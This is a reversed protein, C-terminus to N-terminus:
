DLNVKIVIATMDDLPTKAGCFARVTSYLGDVIERATHQMHAQIFDLVGRVGFLEDDTSHAELIGDTLLLVLEGPELMLAPAACVDSEPLIGLPLGTSELNAKVRGAHDFLYCTTHGASAYVLSKIRPDLRAFLFTVYRDDPTDLALAHNLLQIIETVDTHTTVFARLYARTEAMLLAPGFGHGSVDGVAIGLSGDRLPIYDFYDGGTAETPYSAGSIDFDALPLHAVPFLKQQIQRALDIEQRLRESELREKMEAIQREHERQEIQRLLATHQHVQRTKQFIEVFVAVKSRLVQTVVPKSLYDVAGLSYGKFMQVDDTQFATLFIIPTNKCRERQRILEATEFGDMGPMKVDMLILAVDEQLLFRLAEIGSNAKILEVNLDGLTASLALLNRPEDDVALLKVREVDQGADTAGHPTQVPHTQTANM